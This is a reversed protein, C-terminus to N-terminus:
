RASGTAVSFAAPRRSGHRLVHRNLGMGYTARQLSCVFPDAARAGHDERYRKWAALDALTGSDWWLPVRRPRGGKAFEARVVLHPRGVGLVVRSELTYRERGHSQEGALTEARWQEGLLLLLAPSTGLHDEVADEARRQRAPVLPIREAHIDDGWSRRALDETEEVDVEVGEVRLEPTRKLHHLQSAEQALGFAAAADDGVQNVVLADQSDIANVLQEPAAVAVTLHHLTPRAFAGSYSAIMAVVFATLAIMAVVVNRIGTKSAEPTAHRAM